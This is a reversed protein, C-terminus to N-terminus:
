LSFIRNTGSNWQINFDGSSMLIPLGVSTDIYAILPSTAESGTDQYIVMADVQGTVAPIIINNANAVGALATKGSLPDSIATRAALPVDSIFEDSTVDANYLSKDVLVVRITSSTWNLAGTLFRQKAGTYLANM